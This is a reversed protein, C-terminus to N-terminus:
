LEREEMEGEAICYIEVDDQCVPCSVESQQLFAQEVAFVVCCDECEYIHYERKM